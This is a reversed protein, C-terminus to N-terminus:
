HLSVMERIVRSTEGVELGTDEKVRRKKNLWKQRHVPNHPKQSLDTWVDKFHKFWPNEPSKVKGFLNEWVCLWCKRSHPTQLGPSIKGTLKKGRLKPVGRTSWKKSAKHLFVFCHDELFGGDEVFDMIGRRVKEKQAEIVPGWLKGQISPDQSLCLWTESTTGPDSGLVRWVQRGPSLVYKPPDESFAAQVGPQTTGQRM